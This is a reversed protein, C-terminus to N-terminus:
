LQKSLSEYGIDGGLLSVSKVERLLVRSIEQAYQGDNAEAVIIHKYNNAVEKLEKELVPFLRIPRFWAYKKQLSAAVRSVIGFSIFLTDSDKNEIYEYLNYNAAAKEVQSKKAAYWKKYVEPDATQPVGKKDSLLGTFHRKGNGLGPEARELIKPTKIKGLDVSEELHGTFGDTLVFVPSSAEEALNFATATIQYSEAVSNPALVLSTYDGHSGHKAQLIDGQAPYTPMGTSPGVRQVNVFVLPASMMYALGISEQMLSFGPGSTATFAKAGALSAGIIATASAIEDEMQLFKFEPHTTSYKAATAMIENSPTIPYGAFFDAGAKVAGYFVAENGQVLKM